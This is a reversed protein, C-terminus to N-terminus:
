SYPSLSSCEGNTIKERMYHVFEKFQINTIHILNEIDDSSGKEPNLFINLNRM